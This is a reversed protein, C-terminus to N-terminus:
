QKPAVKPTGGQGDSQNTNDRCVKQGLNLNKLRLGLTKVLCSQGLDMCLGQYDRRYSGLTGNEKLYM